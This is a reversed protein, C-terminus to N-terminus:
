APSDGALHIGASGVRYTLGGESTVSQIGNEEVAARGYLRGICRGTGRSESSGHCCTRIQNTSSRATSSFISVFIFRGAIGGTM